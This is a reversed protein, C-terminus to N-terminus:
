GDEPQEEPGEEPEQEAAERAARRAQREQELPDDSWDLETEVLDEGRKLVIVKKPGGKQLEDVVEDRATVEVGDISQIVDGAEWGAKAARGDPVVRDVECGDRRNLMVGMRRPEPIRMMTRDVLHDLDAFGLAALAVVLSSHIQDADDVEEITDYQTHHLRRYGERSQDWHFAPVGASVFPAHDSPGPRLGPVERVEFPRAPDLRKIPAFVAEFDELMVETVGIGRLYNTGNDHNLVVSIRELEDVHREVYGKSGYLGQEEGSYLVFRITRKPRIGVTAILRAAEMTTAVGTGNDCAGQAADWADIHAQVIVYEDPWETGKLEAVVNHQTIPGHLFQNEIDFEVRLPSEGAEAAAETEERLQQFEDYQLKVQVLTPLDDWEVEWSGGTVLRGDRSAPRITGAVGLEAYREDLAARSRRSVKPHRLLWAGELEEAREEVEELDRPEVLVPGEVAGTTGPSWCNTTFTLPREEPAVVRGRSPGRDFGVEVQGWEELRAELGYSKFTDAAWTQARQLGSSGTLRKPFHKTIVEINTRLGFGQRGIEILEQIRPDESVEAAPTVPPPEAVETEQAALVPALALVLPIWLAPRSVCSRPVSPRRM